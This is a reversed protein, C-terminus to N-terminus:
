ITCLSPTLLISHAQDVRHPWNHKRNSYETLVRTIFVNMHERYGKFYVSVGESMCLCVRACVCVSARAYVCMCVCVCVRVCVCVCMCVISMWDEWDMIKNDKALVMFNPTCGWGRTCYMRELDPHPPPPSTKESNM